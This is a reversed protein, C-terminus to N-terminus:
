KYSFSLKTQKSLIKQYDNHNQVFVFTLKAHVTGPNSPYRIFAEWSQGCFRKSTRFAFIKKEDIGRRRRSSQPMERCPHYSSFFFMLMNSKVGFARRRRREEKERM